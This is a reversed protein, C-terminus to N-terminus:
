SVNELYFILLRTHFSILQDILINEPKIDRHIVRRGHAHGLAAAIEIAIHVARQWPLRVERRLTDALSEGALREMMITHHGEASLGYRIVDVVIPHDLLLNMRAERYYREVAPEDGAFEDALVKVAVSESRGELQVEFSQVGM